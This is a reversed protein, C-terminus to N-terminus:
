EDRMENFAQRATTVFKAVKEFDKVGPRSETGTAVDVGWPRIKQIMSGVNYHTLGGAAILHPHARAHPLETWTASTGSGPEPGDLLLADFAVTPMVVESLGGLSVARIITAVGALRLRDILIQSPEDHLQVAILRLVSVTQAIEDETNGRFVGVALQPSEIQRLINHATTLPVVRRSHPAFILGFADVDMSQLAVADVVSTVGCVKIFGNTVTEVDYQPLRSYSPARNQM